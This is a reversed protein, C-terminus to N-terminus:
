LHEFLAQSSMRAKPRHKIMCAFGINHTSCKLRPCAPNLLESTGRGDMAFQGTQQRLCGEACISGLQIDKDCVDKAAKTSLADHPPAVPWHHRQARRISLPQIHRKCQHISMSRPVLFRYEGRIGNSEIPKIKSVVDISSTKHRALRAWKDLSM